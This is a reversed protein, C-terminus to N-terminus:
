PKRGRTPLCRQDGSEACHRRQEHKNRREGAPTQPAPYFRHEFSSGGRARRDTAPEAANLRSASRLALATGNPMDDARVAYVKGNVILTRRLIEDGVGYNSADDQSSEIVEATTEDVYGPIRQDIDVMLADIANYVAARAIHALDTSGLGQAAKAQFDERVEAIEQAYLDDLIPRAREALQGPSVEPNGSITEQPPIISNTRRYASAM